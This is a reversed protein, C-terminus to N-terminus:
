KAITGGFLHATHAVSMSLSKHERILIFGFFLM